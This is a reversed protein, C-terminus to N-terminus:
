VATVAEKATGMADLAHPLTALQQLRDVQHILGAASRADLGEHGAHGGAAVRRRLPLRPLFERLHHLGLRLGDLHVNSIRNAICQVNGAGRCEEAPVAFGRM